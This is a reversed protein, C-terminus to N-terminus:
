RQGAGIKYGREVLGVGVGCAVPFLVSIAVVLLSKGVVDIIKSKM